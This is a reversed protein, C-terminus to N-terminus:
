NLADHSVMIKILKKINTKPKWKIKSLNKSPIGILKEIDHPRKYSNSSKIVVKNTKLDIAFEKGNKKYWKLHVGIEKFVLNAFEKVSTGTGTSVLYDDPKKYEMIKIMSDVFEKAYGWDRVANVNGLELIKRKKQLYDRAFLTIKRTVFTEGRVESEHNFLIGNCAFIGYSDRYNKTIWYSFLKSTGYPSCPKFPKEFSQPAKTTGFMESTSAQYYRIKKDSIRISELINLAGLANVNCTYLPLEFSVKVHSQAALNYVHNPKITNILDYTNAFDTIDGYHLIFKNKYKKNNYLSDIRSTNIISTRRKVGHVIYGKKILAEALYSGDQGTVGFILAFKKKM